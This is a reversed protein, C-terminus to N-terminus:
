HRSSPAPMCATPRVSRFSKRDPAIGSGTIDARPLRDILEPFYKKALMSWSPCCSTLLFPLEETTVKEVYHHAEKIAGMDAGLAVEFVNTFGIEMLAAKINKITANKGFQGVIAPAIIAIVDAHNKM